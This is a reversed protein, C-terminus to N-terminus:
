HSIIFGLTILVCVFLGSRSLLGSQGTGCYCHRTNRKKGLVNHGLVRTWTIVPQRFCLNRSSNVWTFLFFLCMCLLLLYVTCALTDVLPGKLTTMPGHIYSGRPSIKIKYCLLYYVHTYPNLGLMDSM